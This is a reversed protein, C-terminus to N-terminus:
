FWELSAFGIFRKDMGRSAIMVVQQREPGNCADSFVDRLGFSSSPFCRKKSPFSDTGSPWDQAVQWAGSTPKV